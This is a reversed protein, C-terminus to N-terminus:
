NDSGNILEDHLAIVAKKEDKNDVVFAINIESAGQSIMEVNVKNNGMISFVKGAVGHRHKLGEGIVCIIAKNKELTTCSFVSLKDVVKQVKEESVCKNISLSINVESTSVMDVSVEEELFINFAKAMFGFSNLMRTSNINLITIDRNSSVAKVTTNGKTNKRFIETFSSPNFSNIVKVCIDKKMAPEITKPHLVRAGFTALESMENFDMKSITKARKVIRPDATMIGDVDTYIRIEESDLAAGIISAIYDSSGRGLTTTRNDLTTGVFGTFVVINEKLLPAIKNKLADNTRDFFVDANNFNDDTFILNDDGQLVVSKFGLQEIACSLFFASFKEGFGGIYDIDEPKAMGQQNVLVLRQKVSSCFSKLKKEDEEDITTKIQGLIKHHSSYLEDVTKEIDIKGANKVADILFDTTDGVASVVSVVESEGKIELLIKAANIIRQTDALSSGGFKAVIM